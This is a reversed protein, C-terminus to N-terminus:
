WRDFHGFKMDDMFKFQSLLWYIEFKTEKFNEEGSYLANFSIGCAHQKCETLSFFQIYIAM